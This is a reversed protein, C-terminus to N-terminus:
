MQLGFVILHYHAIKNLIYRSQLYKSMEPAVECWCLRVLVSYPCGAVRGCWCQQVQVTAGAGKCWCLLVLVAADAGNCWCQLVLVAAGAGNCWCQQVLVAASNNTNTCMQVGATTYQTIFLILIRAGASVGTDM